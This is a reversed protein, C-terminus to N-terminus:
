MKPIKKNAYKFYFQSLIVGILCFIVIMILHGTENKPLVFALGIYLAVVGMTIFASFVSNLNQKFAAMPNEWELKPNITDLFMEVIVLPLSVDATLMATYTLILFVEGGKLPIDLFLWGAILCVWIMLIAIGVYTFAHWFKAQAISEPEIPMAKLDYLSKGERSFSTAAISTANAMFIGFGSAILVIYFKVLDIKESPIDFWFGRVEQILEEINGGSSSIFGAVLSVVMILPFVIIILPGNAFFTPERLVTRVDRVYLAHFLSQKKTEKKLVKEAEEESMKKAKVEAFGNLSRLYLGSLLPILAFLIIAFILALCIISLWNGNMSKALFAFVKGNQQINEVAEILPLLQTLSTGEDLAIISSTSNLSYVLAFIILIASAIGNLIKRKRFAPFLTLIMVLLFYIIFVCIIAITIATIIVGLYFSPKRLLGEYYGYIGAALSYLLIGIIADTVFTIGIKATFLSKAPLPMALFQEEGSGTYYNSAASIMGFVFIAIFSYLVAFITMLEPNGASKFAQYSTYMNSYFMFGFVGFCYIFCLILLINKIIGKAGKKFGDVFSGFSFINKLFIKYVSLTINSM